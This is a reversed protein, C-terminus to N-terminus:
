NEGMVQPQLTVVVLALLCASSLGVDLPERGGRVKGPGLHTGRAGTGIPSSCRCPQSYACRLDSCVPPSLAEQLLTRAGQGAVRSASNLSSGERGPPRPSSNMTLEASLPLISNGFVLRSHLVGHADPVQVRAEILDLRLALAERM